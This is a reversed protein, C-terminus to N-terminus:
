NRLRGWVALRHLLSPARYALGDVTVQTERRRGCGNETVVIGGCFGGWKKPILEVPSMGTELRGHSVLSETETHNILKSFGLATGTTIVLRSSGEKWQETMLAITM